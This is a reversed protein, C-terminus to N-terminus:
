NLSALVRAGSFGNVAMEQAKADAQVRSSVPGLVVRFLPNGDAQATEVVRVPGMAQANEALREANARQSFAGVQVFAPGAPAPQASAMVSAPGTSINQVTVMPEADAPGVYRVRVNTHGQARFGLLDAGRASLDILRSGVFPGRDNIRVVISRGNTLNTVEVLSPIPLTPHAGTVVNMDFIEGNATPRGQFDSGYWSAVGTEDYDPEHAPVYWVGNVQYPAGIKQFTAVDQPRVISTLAPESATISIPRSTPAPARVAETPKPAPKPVAVLVAPGERGLVPVSVQRIAGQGSLAPRAIQRPASAAPASARPGGWTQDPVGDHSNGGRTVGPQAIPKPTVVPARAPTAMPRAIPATTRQPSAAENNITAAHGQGSALLCAALSASSLIAVSHKSLVYAAVRAAARQRVCIGVSKGASTMAVNWDLLAMTVHSAAIEAAWLGVGTSGADSQVSFPFKQFRAKLFPDSKISRAKKQM